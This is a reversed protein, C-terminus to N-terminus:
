DPSGSEGPSRVNGRAYSFWAGSLAYICSASLVWRIVKLLARYQSPELEVNGIIISVLLLVGASGTMNGMLRSLSLLASAISLRAKDVSGLAANNNPSTFLGFGFGLTMLAAGIIHLSTDVDVHQLVMLACSMVLCGTTAIIRPEFRDSLRGAFPAVIAMTIAQLMMLKGAAAPSMGQIFQLYLSLLFVLPFNSAYACTSALLSRSFIRNDMIARFRILPFRATTQQYVFLILGAVGASVCLVGSPSPLLSVGLFLSCAWALFILSGLWDVKDPTESKWEGKLRLLILVIAITILPVPFMFITRWGLTETFWGGLVPGCSMGIYVSANAFGLAMGRNSASFISMVIAMGTAFSMASGLGQLVRTFLLWEISLSQSALLSALTFVIIGTLYVRKRGHIDALRGAPLIAVVNSLLFATPIWSILVADASLDKAIEPVAVNTSSMTLSNSLNVLCISALALWRAAPSGDYYEQIEEANLVPGQATKGIGMPM